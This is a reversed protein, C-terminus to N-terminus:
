RPVDLEIDAVGGFGPDTFKERCFPFRLTALEPACPFVNLNGFFFGYLFVSSNNRRILHLVLYCLCLPFKLRTKKHSESKKGVLLFVCIHFAPFDRNLKKEEDTELAAGVEGGGEGRDPPEGGHRVPRHPLPM